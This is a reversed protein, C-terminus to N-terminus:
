GARRIYGVDELFSALRGKERYYPKGAEYLRIAAARLDGRAIGHFFVSAWEKRRDDGDVIECACEQIDWNAPLIRKFSYVVRAMHFTSTVVYLTGGKLYQLYCISAYVVNGATDISEKELRLREPQIGEEKLIRAMEESETTKILGIIPPPVSGALLVIMDPYINALKAAAMARARTRHSVTGDKGVGAGPVFAVMVRNGEAPFESHSEANATANLRDETM